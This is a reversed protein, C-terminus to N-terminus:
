AKYAILAYDPAAFYTDELLKRMVQVDEMQTLHHLAKFPNSILASNLREIRSRVFGRAEVTYQLSLPPIPNLHTPDSYFNCAGVILNEPNPSEFIAVGGPKLVRLVEDLLSVLRRFPVHEVLHIATVTSLSDRALSRVYDVADAEIVDLGNARCQAVMSRNLDVGQAAIGEERLLELWEGRGCGLDLTAALGAAAHADKVFPLYVALRHKIDERTGRFRDEFSVYFGDLLHEEESVMQEIQSLHIPEPLRKRAEELLLTLRRDQDLINRKHDTLQRALDIFDEEKATFRANISTLAVKNDAETAALRETLAALTLGLEVAVRSDAKSGGISSIKEDLKNLMARLGIFEAQQRQRAFTLAEFQQRERSSIPLRAIAAGLAILYGLLPIHYSTRIAFRPLLGHVRVGHKRGEKSYRLRGLIELKSLTGDRYAKLFDTLGKTDAPRRLIGYYANHIFEEDHYRLFDSLLYTAKQEIPSDQETLQLAEHQEVYPWLYQSRSESSAKISSNNELQLNRQAVEQRIRYMIEDLNNAPIPKDSM